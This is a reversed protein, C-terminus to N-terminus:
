NVLEFKANFEATRRVYYRGKRTYIVVKEKMEGVRYEAESILEVTTSPNQRHQYKIPKM